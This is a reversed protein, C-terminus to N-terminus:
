YKMINQYSTTLNFHITMLVYNYYRLIASLNKHLTLIDDHYKDDTVQKITEVAEESFFRRGSNGDTSGGTKGLSRNVMSLKLGTNDKFATTVTDTGKRIIDGLRDKREIWHPYEM